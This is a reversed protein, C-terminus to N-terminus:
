NGSSKVPELLDQLESSSIKFCHGTELLQDITESDVEIGNVTRDTTNRTEPEGPMLVESTGEVPCRGKISTYFETVRAQMQEQSDFALPNILVSFMNNFVGRPIHNGTAVTEKGAIAGALLEVMIALGSGKHQGFPTLAGSRGEVLPAPDNTALGADDIVWGTPIKEKRNYAVRVKGFAATSTALDLMPKAQNNFPIGISIPNTSFGPECSGHAAVLPAHGWVNVFHISVLGRQACYESYHGARSVHGSNRLGLVAVQHESCAEIAYDLALIAMRHGFGRRADVVRIAGTPPLYEPTQNPILNGDEVQQGYTPLMGIGHSDHGALNAQILHKAVTDAEDQNCGFGLLIKKAVYELSHASYRM